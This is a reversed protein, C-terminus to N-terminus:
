DPATLMVCDSGFKELSEERLRTKLESVKNMNKVLHDYLDQHGRGAKFDSVVTSATSMSHTIHVEKANDM